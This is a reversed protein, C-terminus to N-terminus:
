ETLDPVGHRVTAPSRSLRVPALATSFRNGAGDCVTILRESIGLEPDRLAESITNIRAVPVGAEALITVTEAVTHEEVWSALFQDAVKRNELRLSESRLDPLELAKFQHIAEMARRWFHDPGANVYVWGDTARYANAPASTRDFNRMRVPDAGNNAAGVLEVGLL